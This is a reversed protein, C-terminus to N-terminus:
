MGNLGMEKLYDKEFQIQVIKQQFGRLMHYEAKSESAVHKAMALATIKVMGAEVKALTVVPEFNTMEHLLAVPDTVM